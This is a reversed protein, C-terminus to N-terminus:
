FPAPLIPAYTLTGVITSRAWDANKKKQRYPGSGIAPQIENQVLWNDDTDVPIFGYLGQQILLTAEKHGLIPDVLGERFGPLEDLATRTWIACVLRINETAWITGMGVYAGTPTNSEERIFVLQEAEFYEEEDEADKRTDLIVREIPWGTVSMLQQQVLPLIQALSSQIVTAM